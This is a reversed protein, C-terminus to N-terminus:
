LGLDDPLCLNLVDGGRIALHIRIGSCTSTSAHASPAVLFGIGLMSAVAAAVMALRKM